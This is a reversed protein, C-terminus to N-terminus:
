VCKEEGEKYFTIKIIYLGYSYALAMARAYEYKYL